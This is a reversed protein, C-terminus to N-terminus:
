ETQLHRSERTATVREVETKYYEAAAKLAAEIQAEFKAGSIGISYM